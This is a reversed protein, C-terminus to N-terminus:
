PQYDPPFPLLILEDYVAGSCPSCNLVDVYFYSNNQLKEYAFVLYIDGDKLGSIKEGNRM